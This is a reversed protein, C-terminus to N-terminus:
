DKVSRVTISYEGTTRDLTTAIVRYEGDKQPMYLIRANRDGGSDDDQMVIKGDPGELFLYPDMTKDSRVMDIVVLKGAKLQLKYPKYFVNKPGFNEPPPLYTMDKDTLKNKEEVLPKDFSVEKVKLTYDITEADQRGFGPLVYFIFTDDKSPLFYSKNDQFNKGFVPIIVGQSYDLSAIPAPTNASDVIVQYLKAKELKVKHIGVKLQGKMEQSPAAAPLVLALGLVAVGLVSPSHTRLM